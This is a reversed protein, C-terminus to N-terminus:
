RKQAAKRMFDLVDQGKEADVRKAFESTFLEVLGPTQMAHLMAKAIDPDSMVRDQMSAQGLLGRCATEIFESRTIGKREIFENLEALLVPDITFSVSVKRHSYPNNKPKGPPKKNPRNKPTKKTMTATERDNLTETTM